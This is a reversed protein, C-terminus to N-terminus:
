DTRKIRDRLLWGLLLLMALGLLALLAVRAPRERWFNWDSDKLTEKGDWIM